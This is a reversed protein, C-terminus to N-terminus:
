AVDTLILPTPRDQAASYDGIIPVDDKAHAPKRADM